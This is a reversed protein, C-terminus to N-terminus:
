MESSYIDANENEGGPQGDAGLSSIDFAGKRGPVTYVYARGWPDQPLKKIYGGRRYRQPQALSAPPNLLAQLGDSGAPYTLNDLRYQELAQEITSIDAKAKEIRATDTAPIVNIAVITALLGIIVIVVMLEVLTFGNEASRRVDADSRAGTFVPAWSEQHQAGSEPSRSGCSSQVSCRHVFLNKM